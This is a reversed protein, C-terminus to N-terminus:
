KGLDSIKGKDYGTYTGSMNEGKRYKDIMVSRRAEYAPLEARPQVLDAPNAVMAALNRQTACGFNWYPKNEVYAEGGNPGLDNPWMGCPGAKATLQTYKLRIIALASGAAPSRRVRIVNRPVGSADLISRIERMSEEVARGTPGGSPVDILIGSTSDHRWTQAFALVDARQSPNLGGRNRGIFVDLSHVGEQVVIPHRKRYDDPYRSQAVTSQHCAALAGALVGACLLRLMARRGGVGRTEMASM